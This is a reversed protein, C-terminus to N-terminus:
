WQRSVRVRRRRRRRDGAGRNCDAHELRLTSGRGGDVVDTEHGVDLAMGIRM